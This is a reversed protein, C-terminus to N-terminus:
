RWYQGTKVGGCQGVKAGGNVGSGLDAIMSCIGYLWYTTPAPVIVFSVGSLRAIRPTANFGSPHITQRACVVDEIDDIPFGSESLRLLLHLLRKQYHAEAGYRYSTPSLAWNRYRGATETPLKDIISAIEVIHKGVVLDSGVSHRLDRLLQDQSHISEEYPYRTEWVAIPDIDVAGVPLM